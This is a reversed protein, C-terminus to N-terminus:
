SIVNRVVKRRMTVMVRDTRMTEHDGEEGPRCFTGRRAQSVTEHQRPIREQGEEEIEM